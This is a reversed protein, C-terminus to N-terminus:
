NLCVRPAGCESRGPDVIAQRWRRGRCVDGKLRSDGCDSWVLWCVMSDAADRACRHNRNITNVNTRSPEMDLPPRAALQGLPIIYRFPVLWRGSVLRLSFLQLVWHRFKEPQRHRFQTAPPRSEITPCNTDWFPNKFNAGTIVVDHTAHTHSENNLM